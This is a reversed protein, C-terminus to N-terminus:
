QVDIMAETIQVDGAEAPPTIAKQEGDFGGVPPQVVLGKINEQIQKEFQEYADGAQKLKDAADLQGDAVLYDHWFNLGGWDFSDQVVQSFHVGVLFYWATLQEIDKHDVLKYARWRQGGAAEASTYPILASLKTFALVYSNSKKPEKITPLFSKIEDQLAAKLANTQQYPSNLFDSLETIRQECDTLEQRATIIADNIQEFYTSASKQAKTTKETFKFM